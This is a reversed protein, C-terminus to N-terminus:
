SKNFISDNSLFGLDRNLGRKYTNFKQVIKQEFLQRDSTTTFRRSLIAGSLDNISHDIIDYHVAMPLGNHNDRNIKKHSNIKLRFKTSTEGVYNGYNCKYCMLLCAIKSSDCNYNGPHLIHSTGLINIESDTTNINCIQCKCQMECM